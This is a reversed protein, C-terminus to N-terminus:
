LRFDRLLAVIIARIQNYRLDTEDFIERLTIGSRSLREEVRAFQDQSIEMEKLLRNCMVSEGRGYAIMDITYIEATAEAVQFKKAIEGFSEGNCWRQFAAEKKPFTPIKGYVKKM